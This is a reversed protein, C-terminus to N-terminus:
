IKTIVWTIFAVIGLKLWEWISELVKKKIDKKVEQKSDFAEKMPKIEGRIIALAKEKEEVVTHIIGNKWSDLNYTRNNIETLLEGHSKLLVDHSDVKEKIASTNGEIRGISSKMDLVAQTMVNTDM